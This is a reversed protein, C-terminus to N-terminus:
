HPASVPVGTGAAVGRDGSARSGSLMSRVDAANRTGRRAGLSEEGPPQAPAGPSTYTSLASLESLAESAMASRERLSQAATVAPAAAGMAGLEGSREGSREAPADPAESATPAPVFLSSPPAITAVPQAAVIQPVEPAPAAAPAFLSSPAPEPAAVTPTAPVPLAQTPAADRVLPVLPAVDPLVPVPVTPAMAATAPQLQAPGAPVLPGTGQPRGVPAGKRRLLGRGGSRAPLIDMAAVGTAAFTRVVQPVPQSAPEASSPHSPAGVEEAQEVRRTRIGRNRLM